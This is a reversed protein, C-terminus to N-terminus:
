KTAASRSSLKGVAQDLRHKVQIYERMVQGYQLARIDGAEQAEAYLFRRYDIDQAIHRKRLNLLSRLLDELVKDENPDLKETRALLGDALEMMPLSLSNMVYNLPEAIDQDISEQLLRFIDQHDTHQFDDVSLRGLKNEVLSRDVQYLLDP